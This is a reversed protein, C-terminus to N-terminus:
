GNGEEQEEGWVAWFTVSCRHVASTTTTITIDTAQTASPAVLMNETSGDLHSIDYMAWDYRSIGRGAVTAWESLYWTLPM